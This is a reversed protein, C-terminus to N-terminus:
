IEGIEPMLRAGIRAELKGEQPNGKLSKYKSLKAIWGLRRLLTEISYLRVIAACLLRTFEVRAKTTLGLCGSQM